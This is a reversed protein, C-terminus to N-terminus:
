ESKRRKYDCIIEGISSGLYAGIISMFFIKFFIM